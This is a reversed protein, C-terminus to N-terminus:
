SKGLYEKKCKREREENEEIFVFFIKKPLTRRERISKVQGDNECNTINKKRIRDKKERKM